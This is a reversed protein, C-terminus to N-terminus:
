DEYKEIRKAIMKETMKWTLETIKQLVNIAWQHNKLACVYVLLGVLTIALYILGIITWIIGAM